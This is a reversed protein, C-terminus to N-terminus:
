PRVTHGMTTRRNSHRLRSHVAVFNGDHLARRVEFDKRAFKEADEAMGALLSEMDGKFFPNHHRFGPGVHEDYAERVKGAVVMELLM